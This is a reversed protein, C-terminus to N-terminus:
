ARTSSTTRLCRTNVIVTAKPSRPAVTKVSQGTSRRSNKGSTSAPAKSIYTRAGLPVRISFVSSLIAWTSSNRLFVIASCSRSSNTESIPTL